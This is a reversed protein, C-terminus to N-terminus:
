LKCITITLFCSYSPSHSTLSLSAVLLFMDLLTINTFSVRKTDDLHESEVTVCLREMVLDELKKNSSVTQTTGYKLRKVHFM